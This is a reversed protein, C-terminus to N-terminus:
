SRILGIMCSIRRIKWRLLLRINPHGDADLQIQSSTDRKKENKEAKGANPSEKCM